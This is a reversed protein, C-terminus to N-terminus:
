VCRLLEFPANEIWCKDEGTTRWDHANIMAPSPPFGQTLKKNLFLKAHEFSKM